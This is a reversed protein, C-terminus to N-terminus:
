GRTIRLAFCFGLYVALATGILDLFNFSLDGITLIPATIFTYLGYLSYFVNSLFSSVWNM